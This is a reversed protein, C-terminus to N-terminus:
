VAHDDGSYEEAVANLEHARRRAEWRREHVEVEREDERKDVVSWGNHNFRRVVFRTRHAGVMGGM